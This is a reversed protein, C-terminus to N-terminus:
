PHSAGFECGSDFRRLRHHCAEGNIEEATDAPRPHLLSAEPMDMEQHTM